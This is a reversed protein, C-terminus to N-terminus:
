ATEIGHCKEGCGQHQSGGCARRGGDRDVGWRNLFPESEHTIEAHVDGFPLRLRSVDLGVM